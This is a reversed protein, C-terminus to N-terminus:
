DEDDLYQLTGTPNYGVAKIFKNIDELLENIHVASKKTTYVIKVDADEFIFKM